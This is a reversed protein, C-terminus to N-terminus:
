ETVPGHVQLALDPGGAVDLDLQETVGIPRDDGEPLAVARDLSAVLLKDLLRRRGPQRTVLSELQM